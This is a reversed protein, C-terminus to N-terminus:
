RLLEKSHPAELVQGLNLGTLKFRRHIYAASCGLKRGAAVVPGHRKVAEIIRELPIDLAPRGRLTKEM